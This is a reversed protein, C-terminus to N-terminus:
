PREFLPHTERSVSTIAFSELQRVISDGERSGASSLGPFAGAAVLATTGAAAAAADMDRAADLYPLPDAVDVYAPVGADITARLPRLSRSLPGDFPGAVHVVADYGRVDLSADGYDVRAYEVRGDGAGAGVDRLVEETAAMGRAADRGGLVVRLSGDRRLLHTACATGIRGTGGIVLVKQSADVAGVSAVVWVLCWSM